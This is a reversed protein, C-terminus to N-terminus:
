YKLSSKENRNKSHIILTFSLAFTFKSAQNKNPFRIKLLMKFCM